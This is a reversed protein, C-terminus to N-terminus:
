VRRGGAIKPSCFYSFVSVLWSSHVYIKEAGRDQVEFNVKRLVAIWGVVRQPDPM